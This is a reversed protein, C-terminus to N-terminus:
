IGLITIVAVAEEGRHFGGGNEALAMRAGDVQRDGARGRLQEVLEFIQGIGTAGLPHGKSMLGGSPNLPIRGGITTEGKEALAGGEGLAAFGLMESQLIEAFATADHVEAVSIDRPGVGAEEYARASLRRTIHREYDDLPRDTGTGVVSALVRIPAQAALRDLGATNCVIVAAAGDTIPACMPVTLPEALRRGALVEDISMAIRYHARPNSVSHAHNKAAAAAIQHATLGFNRMHARAMAAYIDMFVSRHGAGDGGADGGLEHLTRQLSAPDHVDTGGVFNAMTRTPDGINMKEVGIAVAVDASGSRILNVALNFATSGTACANEVNYVPIGEIGLERLAVQGAISSQGENLGQVVNGFVAADFSGVPTGADARADEIASRVLQKVSTNRHIGFPTMGVGAIWVEDNM